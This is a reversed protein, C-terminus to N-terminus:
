RDERIVVDLAGESRSQGLCEEIPGEGGFVLVGKSGVNKAKADKRTERRVGVGPEFVM